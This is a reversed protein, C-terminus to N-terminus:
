QDQEARAKSVRPAHLQAVETRVAPRRSSPPLYTRYVSIHFCAQQFEEEVDLKGNQMLPLLYTRMWAIQEMSMGRKGFDIAEGTLHPSAAEGDVGAANGNVRQLRVQYAVTRVASNVQLPEHFRAYYSRAIDAAFRVAWPRACRRDGALEPNVHLSASEPFDVLQRTARMHRLDYDDEVRQLGEDDAMINQHVLIERTGKLPAPMVLRGNRYLGPMVLPQEVEAILEQRSVAPVDPLEVADSPTRITRPSSSVIPAGVLDSPVPRNLSAPMRDVPGADVRATVIPKVILTAAHGQVSSVDDDPHAEGSASIEVSAPASAARMFDDVTLPKVEAAVPETVAADNAVADIHPSQTAATPRIQVGRGRVVSARHFVPTDRDDIQPQAHHRVKTRAGAKGTAAAADHQMLRKSSSRRPTKNGAHVASTDRRSKAHAPQVWYSQRAVAGHRMPVPHVEATAARSTCLVAVGMAIVVAVVCSVTRARAGHERQALGWQTM